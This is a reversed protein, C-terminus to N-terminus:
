KQEEKHGRAVAFLQAYRHAFARLSYHRLAWAATDERDAERARLLAQVLGEPTDALREPFDALIEGVGGRRLAAVPTGCGMAEIIVLGFPEDWQPTVACVAARSVADALEEHSLEGLFTLDDGLRPTIEADMYAPDGVRGAIHLELGAARCADIAVHLGKEAVIRGFWIAHSGVQGHESEGIISNGPKWVYEDYGNPVIHAPEPLEWSAATAASVAAFVGAPHGGFRTDLRAAAATVADQVEWFAPTHLTTVMPLPEKGEFLGPHLSNNFVVDIEGAAAQEELHGRLRDFAANEKEREGPPYTHDTEEDEHGTWDVGPFEWASVHGESGATAYLDVRHGARRLARVATACMAELGGAYPERIPFRSPAVLAVRYKQASLESYMVRHFEAVAADQAARDGAYPLRGRRALEALAAGAAHGDGVPYAAAADPRDAQGAFCGVDPVAVPVGLDRCMELWGSHTGRHYPLVVARCSAVTRHLTDDDMPEHVVVEVGPSERLAGVLHHERSDAHVFVTLSVHEAIAAYFGPEAMVNARLSKLFVAAEHIFPEERPTTISPHPAVEIDRRQLGFESVLRERAATTLTLIRAADALALSLLEHYPRQDDLHPNDIDHVTVVLPVRRARLNDLFARMESASLHEFGFHLHVVDAHNDEWWEPKLGPHPWWPTPEDLIGTTTSQM